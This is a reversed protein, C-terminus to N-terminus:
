HETSERPWFTRGDKRKISEIQDHRVRVVGRGDITRIAIHDWATIIIRGPIIADATRIVLPIAESAARSLRAVLARHEIARNFSPAASM